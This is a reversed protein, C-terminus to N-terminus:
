CLPGVFYGQSSFCPGVPPLQVFVSDYPPVTPVPWMGYFVGLLSRNWIDRVTVGSTSTLNLSAFALTKSGAM